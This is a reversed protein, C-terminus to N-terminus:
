ERPTADLAPFEEPHLVIHHHTAATRLAKPRIKLNSRSVSNNVPTEDIEGLPHHDTLIRGKAVVDDQKRMAGPLRDQEAEWSLERRNPDPVVTDDIQIGHNERSDSDSIVTRDTCARDNNPINWRV